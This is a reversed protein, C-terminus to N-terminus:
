TADPASESRPVEFDGQASFRVTNFLGGNLKGSMEYTIKEVPKGDLMGAVQRVMRLVSVTVPVAVVAEGFAPVTGSESTVGSAFTKDLVDLKLYAGSFEIPSQNPNQVRLKVLMRIEMGEGPLSEMGAVTVQIPDKNPTSACGGLALLAVSLLIARRTTM